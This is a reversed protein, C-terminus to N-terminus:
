NYKTLVTHPIQFFYLSNSFITWATAKFLKIKNNYKKSYGQSM